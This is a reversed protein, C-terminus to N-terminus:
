KKWFTISVFSVIDLKYSMVYYGALFLFYKTQVIIKSIKIPTKRVLNILYIDYVLLKIKRKSSIYCTSCKIRDIKWKFFFM